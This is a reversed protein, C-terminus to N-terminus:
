PTLKANSQQRLMKELEILNKGTRDYVINGKRFFEAMKLCLAKIKQDSTKAMREWDAVTKCTGCKGRILNEPAGPHGCDLVASIDSMKVREVREGCKKCRAWKKSTVRTGFGCKPCMAGSAMLLGFVLTIGDKHATAPTDAGANSQKGKKICDCKGCDKISHISRSLILSCCGMQGALAVPYECWDPQKYRKLFQGMKMGSTEVIKDQAAKPLEHWYTATSVGSAVRTAAEQELYIASM